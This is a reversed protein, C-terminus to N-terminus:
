LALPLLKDVGAAKAISLIDSSLSKFTLNIQNANAFKLWELLLALGASNSHSVNSFDVVYDHQRKLLPLSKQYVSMVNSFDLEGSVYFQNAAYTIDAKKM